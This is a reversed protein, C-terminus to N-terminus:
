NGERQDFGASYVKHGLHYATADELWGGPKRVVLLRAALYSIAGVLLSLIFSTTLVYTFIIGACILVAHLFEVGMILPKLNILKHHTVIM